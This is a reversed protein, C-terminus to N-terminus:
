KITGIDSGGTNNNGANGDNGLIDHYAITANYNATLEEESLNRNYVRISYLYM